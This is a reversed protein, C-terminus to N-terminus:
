CWDRVSLHECYLALFRPPVSRVREKYRMVIDTTNAVVTICWLTPNCSIKSIKILGGGFSAVTQRELQSHSSAQQMAPRELQLYSSAQQMIPRELQLHSSAQQMIPRELQLYSSAQQMRSTEHSVPSVLLLLVLSVRTPSYFSPWWRRSPARFFEANVFIWLNFNWM